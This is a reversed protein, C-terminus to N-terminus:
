IFSVAAGPSLGYVLYSGDELRGFLKIDQSSVSLISRLAGPNVAFSMDVNGDGSYDAYKFKSSVPKGSVVPVTADDSVGLRLTSLNIDQFDVEANGVLWFAVRKKSRLRVQSPAGLVGTVTDYDVAFSISQYLPDSLDPNGLFSNGEYDRVTDYMFSLSYTKGGALNTVPDIVLKNGDVQVRGLSRYEHPAGPSGFTEVWMGEPSEETLYILGSGIVIDKSFPIVIESTVTVLRAAEEVQIAPALMSAQQDGLMTVFDLAALDAPRFWSAYRLDPPDGFGLTSEDTPLQQYSDGDGSEDLHELQFAHGLEHLIVMEWVNQYNQEYAPTALSLEYRFGKAIWRNRQTDYRDWTWDSYALGGYTGGGYAGPVPQDHLMFSINAQDQSNVYQFHIELRSGLFDLTNRIFASRWSEMPLSQYSIGAYVSSTGSEDIFITLSRGQRQFVDRWYTLYDGNNAIDMFSPGNPLINTMELSIEPL